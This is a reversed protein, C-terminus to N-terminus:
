PNAERALELDAERVVDLGFATGLWERWRSLIEQRDPSGALLDGIQSTAVRATIGRLAPQVGEVLQRWKRLETARSPVSPTAPRRVECTSDNYSAGM